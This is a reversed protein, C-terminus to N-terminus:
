CGQNTFAELWNRGDIVSLALGAALWSEGQKPSAIINATEGQRLLGDIVPPRLRPHATIITDLAVPPGIDLAGRGHDEAEDADDAPPPPRHNGDPPDLLVDLEEDADTAALLEANVVDLDGNDNPEATPYGLAGLDTDLM